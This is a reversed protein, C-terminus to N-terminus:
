TYKKSNHRFNNSHVSFDCSFFNNGEVKQYMYAGQGGSPTQTNSTAIQTASIAM